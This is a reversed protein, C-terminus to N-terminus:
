EVKKISSKLCIGFLLTYNIGLYKDNTWSTPLGTEGIDEGEKKGM